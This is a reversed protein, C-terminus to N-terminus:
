LKEAQRKDKIRFSGEEPMKGAARILQRILATYPRM